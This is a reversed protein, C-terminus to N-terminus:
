VVEKHKFLERGTKKLRSILTKQREIEKKQEMIKNVTETDTAAAVKVQYYRSNDAEKIARRTVWWLRGAQVSLAVFLPAVVLKLLWFFLDRWVQAQYRAMGIQLEFVKTDNSTIVDRGAKIESSVKSVTNNVGAIAAGQADVKGEVKDIKSELGTVKDALKLQEALQLRADVLPKKGMGSANCACFLSLFVFVLTKM